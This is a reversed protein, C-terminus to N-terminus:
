SSKGEKWEGTGPDIVYLSARGVATLLRYRQFLLQAHATLWGIHAQCANFEAYTSEARYFSRQGCAGCPSIAIRAM